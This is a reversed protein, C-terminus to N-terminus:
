GNLLQLVEVGIWPYPEQVLRIKGCRELREVTGRVRASESMEFTSVRPRKRLVSLVTDDHQLQDKTLHDLSSFRDLRIVHTM